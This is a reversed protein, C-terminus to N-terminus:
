YVRGEVFEPTDWDIIKAGFLHKAEIALALDPVPSAGSPGLPHRCARNLLEAYKKDGFFEYDEITFEREWVNIRATM